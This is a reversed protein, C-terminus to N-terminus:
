REVRSLVGADNRVLGRLTLLLLAHSVEGAGLSLALAIEVPYRVGADIAELIAQEMENAGRAAAGPRSPTAAPSSRARRQPPSRRQPPLSAGPAPPVPAPGELAIAHLGRGELSRLVPEISSIPLANGRELEQLGGLGRVNWPASPVVFCPRGLERAWRAANRAGSILGAEVVILAHALAVLVANRLFFQSRHPVRHTAFPSLHCGGKAVIEDYLAAHEAPYPHALGSPAVVLTAGGADLAGRHAAADIGKAGGSSVVVGSRALDFAFQRAFVLAEPTADRAGVVAVCPGRPLCGHVFLRVPPKPLERLATPLSAGELLHFPGAQLSGPM